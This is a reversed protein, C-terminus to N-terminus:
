LNESEPNQQFDYKTLILERSDPLLVLEDNATSLLAESNETAAFCQQVCLRQFYLADFFTHKGGMFILANARFMIKEVKAAGYLYTLAKTSQFILLFDVGLSNWDCDCALRNDVTLCKEIAEIQGCNTFEDFIFHVPVPCTEFGKANLYDLISDLTINFMGSMTGADKTSIFFAWKSIVPAYWTCFSRHGKEKWTNPDDTRVEYGKKRFYQETLATLEGKPDFCIVSEGAQGAALLRNVAICRTKGTAPGGCAVINGAWEIPKGTLWGISMGKSTNKM